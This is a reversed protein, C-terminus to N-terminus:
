ASGGYAASTITGAIHARFAAALILGGGVVVIFVISRHTVWDLWAFFLVYASFGLITRLNTM